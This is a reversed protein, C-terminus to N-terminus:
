VQPLTSIGFQSLLDVPNWYCRHRVEYGNEIHGITVGRFSWEQGNGPIGFHDLPSAAVGQMQWTFFYGEAGTHLSQITTTTPWSKSWGSVFAQINERGHYTRRLADDYMTADDSFVSCMLDYDRRNSAGIYTTAIEEARKIQDSTM